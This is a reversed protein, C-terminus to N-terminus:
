YRKAKPGNLFVIAKDKNKGTPVAIYDYGKGNGRESADWYCPGPQGSGDEHTCPPVGGESRIYRNIAAQSVAEAEQAYAIATGGTLGISAALFYGVFRNRRQRRLTKRTKVVRKEQAATRTPNMDLMGPMTM